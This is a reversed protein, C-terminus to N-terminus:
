GSWLINQLADDIMCRIDGLSFQIVRETESDKFWPWSVNGSPTICCFPGDGVFAKSRDPMSVKRIYLSAIKKKFSSLYSDILGSMVLVSIPMFSEASIQFKIKQQFKFCQTSVRVSRFFLCSHTFERSLDSSIM